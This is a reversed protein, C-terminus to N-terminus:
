HLKLMMGGEFVPYRDSLGAGGKVGIRKSLAIRTQLMPIVSVFRRDTLVTKIQPGFSVKGKSNFMFSLEMGQDSYKNSNEFTSKGSTSFYGVRFKNAIAVDVNLGSRWGRISRNTQVGMEISFKNGYDPYNVKREQYYGKSSQASLNNNAVAVLVLLFIIIRKMTKAPRQQKSKM